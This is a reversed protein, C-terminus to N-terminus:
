PAHAAVRLVLRTTGTGRLLVLDLAERGRAARLMAAERFPGNGTPPVRELRWGADRLAASTAGIAGPLGVATELTFLRTGGPGGWEVM